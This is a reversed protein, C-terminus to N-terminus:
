SAEEDRCLGSELWKREIDAMRAVSHWGQDALDMQKGTLSILSGDDSVTYHVSVTYETLGTVLKCDVPLLILLNESLLWCCEMTARLPYSSAGLHLRSFRRGFRVAFSPDAPLSANIYLGLTVISRCWRAFYSCSAISLKSPYLIRPYRNLSLYEMLKWGEAFRAIQQDNADVPLTHEFHFRRLASLTLLPEFAGIVIPDIGNGDLPTQLDKSMVLVLQYLLPCSNVLCRLFAHLHSSRTDEPFAISLDVSEIRNGVFYPSGFLRRATELDPLSLALYCLSQFSQTRSSEWVDLPFARVLERRGICLDEWDEWVNCTWIYQLREHFALAALVDGSICHRPLYVCELRRLGACLVVIEEASAQIAPAGVLTLSRLHPTLRIISSAAGRFYGERLSVSQYRNGLIWKFCTISPSLIAPTWTTGTIHLTRLNPFLASSPLLPAIRRWSSPSMNRGGLKPAGSLHRVRQCNRLFRSWLLPSIDEPNFNQEIYDIFCCPCTGPM